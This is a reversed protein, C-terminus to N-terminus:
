MRPDDLSDLVCIASTVVTTANIISGMCLPGFDDSHVSVAAKSPLRAFVFYPAVLAFIIFVKTSLMMSKCVFNVKFRNDVNLAGYKYNKQASFHM